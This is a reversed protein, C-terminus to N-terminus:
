NFNFIFLSNSKYDNLSVRLQLNKVRTFVREFIKVELWVCLPCLETRNLKKLIKWFTEFDM